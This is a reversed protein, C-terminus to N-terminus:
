DSTLRPSCGMQGSELDIGKYLMKTPLANRAPRGLRKFLWSIIMLAQPAAQWEYAVGQHWIDQLM